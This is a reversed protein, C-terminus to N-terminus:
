IQKVRICKQKPRGMMGKLTHEFKINRPSMLVRELMVDFSGTKDNKPSGPWAQSSPKPVPMKLRSM